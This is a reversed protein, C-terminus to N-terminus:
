AKTKEPKKPKAAAKAKAARVAQEDTQRQTDLKQEDAARQSEIKQEGLQQQVAAKQQQVQVDV